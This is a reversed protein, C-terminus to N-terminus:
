FLYLFNYTVGVGASWNLEKQNIVDNAQFTKGYGGYLGIAFRKVRKAKLTALEIEQSEQKKLSGLLGAQLDLNHVQYEDLKIGLKDANKDISDLEKRHNEAQTNFKDVCDQRQKYYLKRQENIKYLAEIREPTNLDRTQSHSLCPILCLM